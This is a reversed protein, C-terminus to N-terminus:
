RVLWLKARKEAEVVQAVEMYPKLYSKLQTARAIDKGISNATSQRFDIGLVEGWLGARHYLKQERQRDRRSALVLWKYAETLDRNVGMGNALLTALMIQGGIHDQEASKQAWHYSKKVNRETGDGNAYAASVNFQAEPDSLEAAALNLKFARALDRRACTGTFYQYAELGLATSPDRRALEQLATKLSSCRSAQAQGMSAYLMSMLLYTLLLISRFVSM